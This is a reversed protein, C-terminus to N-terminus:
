MKPLIVCTCAVACCLAADGGTKPTEPTKLKSNKLLNEGQRTVLVLVDTPFSSFHSQQRRWTYIVTVHSHMIAAM